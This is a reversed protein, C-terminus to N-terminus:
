QAVVIHSFESTNNRADTATAAVVEGPAVPVQLTVNFVAHGSADTTVTAFGLFQGGQGFGTPDASTSAFFEVRFTANPLSDLTGRVTVAGGTTASTLVPFNQLGNAGTDKDGADNPTVGLSNQDNTLDIGLGHSADIVRVEWQFTGPITPATATRLRPPRNVLMVHGTDEAGPPYHIAIVDGPRVEDVSKVLTLGKRQRILDYYTNAVPRGRGTWRRFDDRTLGYARALLADLFGSCDTRAENQDAGDVVAWRVVTDHHCYETQLPSLHRVFERAQELHKPATQQAIVAGAALYVACPLALVLRAASLRPGIM